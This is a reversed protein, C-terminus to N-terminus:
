NWHDQYREKLLYYKIQHLFFLAINEFILTVFISREAEKPIGPIFYELIYFIILQFHNHGYEKETFLRMM